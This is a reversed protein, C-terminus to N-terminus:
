AWLVARWGWPLEGPWAQVEKIRRRVGGGDLEDPLIPFEDTFRYTNAREPGRPQGLDRDITIWGRREMERSSDKVCTQSQGSFNVLAAVTAKVSSARGELYRMVCALFELTTPNFNRPKARKM